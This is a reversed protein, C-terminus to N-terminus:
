AGTTRVFVGGVIKYTTGNIKVTEGEHLKSLNVLDDKMTHVSGGTVRALELYDLLVPHSETGCLIIHVPHQITGILAIDKIPAFNDAILIIEKAEPAAEIGRLLAECNNEPGDGGGGHSITKEAAALIDEYTTGKALYIGGIRGVVKDRDAKMDGDNFFVVQKVRKDKMKLQFWVLLETTYPSMSGTMDAVILMDKWEKNRELVKIITSDALKVGYPRDKNVRLKLSDGTRPLGGLYSIDRAITEEDQKPLYHIVVGHFLVKAEEENTCSTQRIVKWPIDRDTVLSKRLGLVKQIRTKNIATFDAGKPFDSYVLDVGIVQVESLLKRDTESIVDTNGYSMNLVVAKMMGTKLLYVPRSQERQALIDDATRGQSFSRFTTFLVLCTLFAITKM